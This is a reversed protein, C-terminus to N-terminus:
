IECRKALGAAEIIKAIYRATYSATRDVKTPDKGSFAGGGHRSYGGYTDVIVKRGILGTDRHPCGIVFRVTPNIYKRISM